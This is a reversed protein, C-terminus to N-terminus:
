VYSQRDKHESDCNMTRHVNEGEWTTTAIEPESLM